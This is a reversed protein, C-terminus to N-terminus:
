FSLFTIEQWRARAFAFGDGEPILSNCHPFFEVRLLDGKKIEVDWVTLKYPTYDPFDSGFILPNKFDLVVRNNVYVKYSCEGDLEQLATFVMHYVGDEWEFTMEAAAWKDTPQTVTNVAYAQRANDFYAPSFGDVSLNWMERSTSHCPFEQGSLSIVGSLFLSLMMMKFMPISNSHFM